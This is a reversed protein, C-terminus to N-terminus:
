LKKWERWENTPGKGNYSENTFIWERSMKTKQTFKSDRGVKIFGRELLENFAESAKSKSCNLVDAAERASLPINGNNGGNYRKRIHPWLAQAHASLSLWAASEMMNDTILVFKSNKSRGNQRIKAM